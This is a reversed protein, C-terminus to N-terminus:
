PSSPEGLRHVSNHIMSNVPEGNAGKLRYRIEMCWTPEIDPISLLVTKGDASVAAGTVTLTRENVHPSGYNATRKLAWIKVAYNAPDEATARDLAGSFNIEMGQRTAHLGTPLYVPKGTYRLRYFGGPQPRSGAWAFMGCLYLQGDGPHFRGRMVGTPFAPIPLRCMGGQVQGDVREHPVVYVMGYGYSTNLLSGALPGWKDSPVWLLEAPSRDFSNTIWCLPQEMLDDSPDTVDHYGYMNGYFSGSNPVVWNIRNKPNWHGEQDTVIFTGDANICVGNAARFGKAVIDTRSGDKSVRLLTGHHPVLATKAHRASKAYYFNGQADTQLGMAFEHFHETVQHDNNFNQYFDTEGDGNLDHLIAIQDRCAVYIKGDVVKVGLPQFLGSAIRQWSLGNEPRDIGDVMWVDGDWCAVAIRHGDPMFDFGTPRVRCLWPNTAPRTLVDVAFPGDDSGVTDQTEVTGAWRPPGGKTLPALDMASENATLQEVLATVQEATKARAVSLTFKLPKEGAPIKLRLDGEATTLWRAGEIQQSIGAVVIGTMATSETPVTRQPQGKVVKGDHRQGTVDRVTKGKSDGPQWRALLGEAPVNGTALQAIEKQSLARGHFSVESMKGEFFPKQPFNPSTFGLRAVLGKETGVPDLRGQGDLKGDIFLRVRNGHHEYTMAVHHWRNDAVSRRSTVVGVFGVDFALKGGRVFLSKGGRAWGGDPVTKCLITGGRKTKIRAHITYDAGSMNLENSKAIEVQTAGDFALATMDANDQPADTPGPEEAVLSGATGFVAIREPVAQSGELAHLASEPDGQRAVQLVMHRRRPGLNFTRTFIAADSSADVAPMELVPTQGVTYSVIVRNGQHYLGKYHAWDRPLPGYPRDDRGLFRPDEFSGTKPDGWGPGTKNEFHLQGVIRPHIAHQGNLMIAKYDIFGEGSWAAAVRLTDEDYIMWYRGRSVGGPGPDLRVAIGKYAFNSADTGVEYSATLNPGYDMAVWPEYNTPAPGRTDGQPLGALYAEDARVYQSPNHQKLYTQRIYHITDYKQQPVMWTQPVMLGFGSTLTKYMSFPDSGNRFKDAAFRLSTPLSGPEDKTGHCNVCLRDYIAEGRQYSEQGLEAIMGAHDLHKEYEPLPPPAYLAPEPELELARQPGGETIEMVYRLLDLFQQRDALQNVLAPTMISQDSQLREDIEDKPITVPKGDQAPDRLVLRQPHDEALLGTVTLGADTIVIVSEYGERIEKSPELISEVLFVDTVKEANKEPPKTLDPGLPSNEEGYAHCKLCTLRQQYFLIAGRTAEGQRRAAKALAAPDEKLLQEELTPGLPVAGDGGRASEALTGLLFLACVLGAGSEWRFCLALRTSTKMWLTKM